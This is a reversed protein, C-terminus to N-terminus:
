TPPAKMLGDAMLVERLEVLNPLNIRLVEVTARGIPTRGVLLGGEYRFHRAWKQRRPPSLPRLKGTAPDLGAINPGKYGNCYACSLALNSALTPGRHHRAIIHDIEFPVGSAIQPLLCYECRGEARERVLRDLTVEM